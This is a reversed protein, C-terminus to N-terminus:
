SAPRCTCACVERPLRSRADNARRGGCVQLSIWDDLKPKEFIPQSFSKSSLLSKPKMREVVASEDVGHLRAVIWEAADQGFRDALIKPVGWTTGSRCLDQVARVAAEPECGLAEVLEHGLKGGLGPVKHVSKCSLLLDRVASPAVLTQSDPKFRASAMKACLKNCSVGASMTYGLERKVCDRLECVFRSAAAYEKRAEFEDGYVHVDPRSEFPVELTPFLSSLDLYAEDISAREVRREDPVLRKVITMVRASAERYRTLSPKIGDLMEIEVVKLAPCAKLAVSVDCRSPVGFKRAAYNVALLLNHQLLALPVDDSLGLRQTEVQAYFADLDLHCIQRRPTMM